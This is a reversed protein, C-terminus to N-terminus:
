GETETMLELTLEAAMTLEEVSTFEGTSHVDSMASAVVIGTIGNQAFINNDSGGFTKILSPTLRCARCAKEFRTIIPHELPTEYAESAVWIDFEVSAHVRAASREFQRRITDLQKKTKEHSLSRVEGRLVCTDPIINTALGGEILGINVTTEEDIRGLPLMSIADAAVAIAHIGKEPEFGAHAAKGRITATFSLISPAAYAAMGIPGSMDLIYAEESLLKTYDFERSGRCYTEEAVTFLVEIPGHPLNKEKVVTLAELICTVGSLDDAGLVTTGDSTIVGSDSLVARKGKSPEVTDLHACFLLPRLSPDGQLLGYINGCDSGIKEGADDEIVMLGLSRLRAKVLDGLQREGYSPSDISVLRTFEDILRVQNTKM